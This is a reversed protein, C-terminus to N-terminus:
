GKSKHNYFSLKGIRISQGCKGTPVRSYALARMRRYKNIIPISENIGIKERLKYNM